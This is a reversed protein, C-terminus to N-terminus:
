KAVLEEEDMFLEENTELEAATKGVARQVRDFRKQFQSQSYVLYDDPNLDFPINDSFEQFGEGILEMGLPLLSSMQDNFVDMLKPDAAILRAILYVGYAIHRAEDQKIKGIGERLGPGIQRTDLVNYFIHYGTEALMGEVVMNYTASARVQAAPSPDGNLADLTAPLIEYFLKSYAPKMLTKDNPPHGVVENFFRNFMDVHKAEEWLFTTLFMEEEIRGEKAIAGILPLLDLTVAEEGAQFNSTILMMYRREREDLGQWDLVDQSFDIDSPNWVGLRKAKEFLRMPVSDRNLGRELTAFSEHKM